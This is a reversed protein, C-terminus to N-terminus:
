KTAKVLSLSGGDLWFLTDCTATIGGMGFMSSNKALDVVTGGAKSIRRVRGGKEGM